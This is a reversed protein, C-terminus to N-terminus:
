VLEEQEISTGTDLATIIEMQIKKLLSAANVLCRKEEREVAKYDRPMRELLQRYTGLANPVEYLKTYHISYSTIVPRCRIPPM